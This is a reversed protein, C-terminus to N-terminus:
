VEGQWRLSPLEGASRRRPGGGVPQRGPILRGNQLHNGVPMADCPCGGDTLIDLLLTDRELRMVRTDQCRLFSNGLFHLLPALTEVLPPLALIHRRKPKRQCPLLIGLAKRLCNLCTEGAVTEGITNVCQLVSRADRADDRRHGSVADHPTLVPVLLHLMPKM